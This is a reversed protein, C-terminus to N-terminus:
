KRAERKSISEFISRLEREQLPPHTVTDNLHRAIRWAEDHTVQRLLYGIRSAFEDNRNGEHIPANLRSRILSVPGRSALSPRPKHAQRILKGLIAPLPAPRWNAGCLDKRWVYQGAPTVSGPAIVYGGDGRVDIGPGLKSVSNPYIEAGTDFYLHFGGTPTSVVVTKPVTIGLGRLSNLGDVGNKRDIDIVTIRNLPGCPIGPVANEFRKFLAEIAEESGAAQGFPNSILPTKNLPNAPFLTCGTAKHVALAISVTASPKM